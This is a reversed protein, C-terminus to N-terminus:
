DCFPEIVEVLWRGVGLKEIKQLRNEHWVPKEKFDAVLLKTLQRVLEEEPDWNGEREGTTSDWWNKFILEAERRSDAYPRPQGAHLLKVEVNFRSM